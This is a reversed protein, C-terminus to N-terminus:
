KRMKQRMEEALVEIGREMGGNDKASQEIRVKEGQDSTYALYEELSVELRYVKSQSPGLCICVDKYVRGPEHGKNISLIEAKQKDSIGLLNQIDDFRNQFKSQDLLIKCDSNNIIAQKIIPSSVIDDVEQSVLALKGMFKRLTKVWYRINEAMGANAIAKWAEEIVIMKRVGRLRRMKSLFVEMIVLTLVPFLIPHDKVNDLEFVIFRQDLLDLNERSNLLFDFEGGKYYPRLVYLFNAVDFEKDKVQQNQLLTVYDTEVFAYFSDFCPFVDAHARIWEYYAQVANSLAVYESRFHAEDSKKWLALLLSKLSEKKETDFVEGPAIYFPNFKIPNSEEYTFYYGGLLGCLVQYSHGVDVIVIHMGQDYYSRCLHNTLFSKGGGSGSLIFMNGNQTLGLRRPEDDIDVHVPYGTLRDGFRMGFDSTSSRYNTEMALFCCAQELFTDFCENEPLDGANGPIGAWWLQPAGITEQHAVADVGAMASGIRNRIDKLEGPQDTWALINFHARVALRQQGIAENLFANTAEQSIANERSYKALSQLRLRKSELKKVTAVQDGIIIYQNYIHNFPLLLGMGAAFGIPFRTRESSYKEYNVRPACQGPLHEADALTFMLCDQDGVRLQQGLDIDRILPAEGEDLLYCYQEIVGAESASSSLKSTPIRRVKIIGSDGLIRCFQGVSDEFELFAVPSLTGSPVLVKRLLGSSASTVARRGAPRRTIFIRPRHKLLPRGDFFRESAKRLMGADEPLDRGKYSDKRYIDQFHVITGEPLVKLAKVFTQHVLDYEAPGMTFIEPKEVELAVTVDGMKSVISDSAVELIPLREDLQAYM